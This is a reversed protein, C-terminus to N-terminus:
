AKPAADVAPATFRVTTGKGQESQISLEGGLHEVLHKVIALGLGTGGMERSRGPDARYFRETVRPLDKAPIGIGTDEVSYGVGEGAREASVVVRGGRLTYRVANQVLNILVSEIKGPDSAVPLPEEPVRAELRVGRREAEGAFLEAVRLLVQRGDFLEVELPAAGAEARSLESVDGLLTELRLVNRRITELFRKAASPDRLAADLLTEASGRIATLPTRLEHSLNSIFDSRMRELHLERTVDRLVVLAEPREEGVRLARLSVELEVAPDLWTLRFPEPPPSAATLGDLAELVRPHRIVEASARGVAGEPPLRLLARAHENTRALRGARDFLLVGYPLGEVLSGLTEKERDLAEIRRRIEDRLAVLSRELDSLEDVGEPRLEAGYDGRALAGGFRIMGEVRRTFSRALGFALALAALVAPIAGLALRRRVEALTSRVESAPMAARVVRPVPLAVYLMEVGLTRSTRLSRGERGKLADAVEPHTAHNEMTAPDRESDALVRGQADVITFRVRATRGARRVLQQLAAPSTAGATTERLIVAFREVEEELRRMASHTLFRDLFVAGAVLVALLVLVNQLLLRAFLRRPM